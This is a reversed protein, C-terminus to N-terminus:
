GRHQVYKEGYRYVKSQEVKDLIAHRIFESRSVGTKAAVAELMTLMEKPMSCSIVATKRMIEGRKVLYPFNKLRKPLDTWNQLIENFNLKCYQLRELKQLLFKNSM